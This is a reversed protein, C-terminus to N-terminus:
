SGRPDVIGWRMQLFKDIIKGKQFVLDLFWRWRETGKEGVHIRIALLNHLVNRMISFRIGILSCSHIRLYTFIWPNHAVPLKRNNWIPSSIEYDRQIPDSRGKRKVSYSTADLTYIIIGYLRGGLCIWGWWNFPRPSQVGTDFCENAYRFQMRKPSRSPSTSLVSTIFDNNRENPYLIDMTASSLSPLFNNSDLLYNSFIMTDKANLAIDSAVFIPNFTLSLLELRKITLASAVVTFRRRRLARIIHDLRYRWNFERDFFDMSTWYLKQLLLAITISCIQAIKTSNVNSLLNVWTLLIKLAHYRLFLSSPRPLSSCIKASFIFDPTALISGFFNNNISDM